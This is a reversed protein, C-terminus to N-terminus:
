GSFRPINKESTGQDSLGYEIVHISPGSRFCWSRKSGPIEPLGLRRFHRSPLETRWRKKQRIEMSQREINLGTPGAPTRTNITILCTASVDEKLCYILSFIYYGSRKYVGPLRNPTM